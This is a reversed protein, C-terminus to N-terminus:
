AWVSGDSTLALTHNQGAAIQVVGSLGKAQLFTFSDTDTGDGLQGHGNWGSSWVTGDAKLLVSHRYDSTAQLIGSM